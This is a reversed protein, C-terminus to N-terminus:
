EMSAAYAMSREDNERNKYGRLTKYRIKSRNIVRETANDTDCVGRTNKHCLLSRWKACLDVALRRLEPEARAERETDTLRKGEDNPLDGLLIRLRLSGSM